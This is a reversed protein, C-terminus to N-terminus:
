PGVSLWQGGRRKKWPRDESGASAPPLSADSHDQQTPFQFLSQNTYDGFWDDVCLFIFGVLSQPFQHYFTRHNYYGTEWLDSTCQSIGGHKPQILGRHDDVMPHQM